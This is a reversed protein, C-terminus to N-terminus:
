WGERKILNAIHAYHHEAHWAYNGTNWDLFVESNSDPHIFSMKYQEPTLRKLLYIWRAHLSELFALSLEIPASTTDILKAWAAEDYAKIIPKEETLTWKYRVYSNAHSDPIHHIVQRVTWGGPRYPTDLQEDSLNEVLKRLKAPHEELVQIWLQIHTQSIEAPAEFLGIPYRLDTM